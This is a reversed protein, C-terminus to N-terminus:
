LTFVECSASRRSVCSGVSLCFSKFTTTNLKMSMSECARVSDFITRSSALLSDAYRDMVSDHNRWEAIASTSFCNDCVSQLTRTVVSWPDMRTERGLLIM